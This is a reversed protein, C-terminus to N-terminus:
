RTIGKAPATRAMGQQVTKVTNVTVGIQKAQAESVGLSKALQAHNGEIMAKRENPALRNHLKDAFSQLEEQLQPSKELVEKRQEAPMNLLQKIGNEPQPISQALRKQEKAHSETIEETVRKVASGYDEVAQGLKYINAEATKRIADKGLLSVTGALSTIAEPANEIRNALVEATKPNQSISAM